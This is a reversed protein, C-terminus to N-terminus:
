NSNEPTLSLRYNEDSFTSNQFIGSWLDPTFTWFRSQSFCKYIWSFVSMLKGFFPDNPPTIKSLAPICRFRLQSTETLKPVRWPYHRHHSQEVLRGHPFWTSPKGCTTCVPAAAALQFKWPDAVIPLKRRFINLKSINREVLWAYINLISIALLMQLNLLISVYTERFFPWKSSHNEFTSSYM